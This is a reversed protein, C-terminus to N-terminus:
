SVIKKDLMDLIKRETSYSLFEKKKYIYLLGMRYTTFFRIKIDTYVVRCVSYITHTHTHKQIIWSSALVLFRSQSDIYIYGPGRGALFFITINPSNKNHSSLLMSHTHTHQIAIVITKYIITVTLQTITSGRYVKRKKQHPTESFNWPSWM